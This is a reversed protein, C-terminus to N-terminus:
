SHNFISMDGGHLVEEVEGLLREAHNETLVNKELKSVTGNTSPALGQSTLLRLTRSLKVCQVVSSKKVNSVAVILEVSVGTKQNVDANASLLMDIISDYGRSAAAMLATVGSHTNNYVDSGKELLSKVILESGKDCAIVLVPWGDDACADPSAGSDLLQKVTYADINRVAAILARDM